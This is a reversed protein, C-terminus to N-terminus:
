HNLRKLSDLKKQKEQSKFYGRFFFNHKLAQMNQNFGDTGKRINEMSGKIDGAMLSDRLLVKLPGNGHDLDQQISSVLQNLHSTLQDANSSASQVQQLTLKLSGAFASDSLLLGVAGRGRRVQAAMYNLNGTMERANTMAMQANFLTIKVSAAFNKDNLIDILPSSDIRLVSKKLAESIVAVNDNTKSLTLLMAEMNVTKRATLLDGNVVQPSQGPPISIINIVKNGMLGESGIFAQANRHIFPAMKSNIMLTVEIATDNLLDISKVTGAQIGSFLVNNGETLGNLYTFHVKLEFGSGFLNKNKGVMYFSLLLVLFGAMVFAGVRTNNERQNAM